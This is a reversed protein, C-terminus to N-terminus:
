QERGGAGKSDNGPLTSGEADPAQSSVATEKGRPCSFPTSCSFLASFFHDSYKRVQEPTHRKEKLLTNM